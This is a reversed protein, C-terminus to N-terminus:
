YQPAPAQGVTKSGDRDSDVRPDMKNLMDSKHPGSTNPAPGGTLAGGVPGHTGHSTGTVGSSHNNGTLGSSHNNGTLGSSHNNGTLGSSHNNGTLGSSHNNGILGSSHNNGTLGSSHNNGTLGSGTTGHNTGTLGSSHQTHVGGPGYQSAGLNKSGDRDSDVRPDMSNLANSDHPGANTSTNGYGGSLGSGTTHQTHSGTLGSSGTTGHNTGTLGSSHQNHSGPVSSGTDSVRPDLKNALNSSHPGTTASGYTGTAAPAGTHGGTHQQTHNHVGGPGHQAAGLNRSGDFDSDVTPDTKNLLSSNHPGAGSSTGTVGTSHGTTGTHTGAHSSTHTGTTHTPDGTSHTTSSHDKPHVIKDVVQKVKDM